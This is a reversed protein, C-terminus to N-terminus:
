GNLIERVRRAANASTVVIAIGRYIVVGAFADSGSGVLELLAREDSGEYGGTRAVVLLVGVEGARVEVETAELEALYLESYYDQVGDSPEELAFQEELRAVVEGVSVRDDSDAGASCAVLVAAIVGVCVVRFARSVGVAQGIASCRGSTLRTPSAM